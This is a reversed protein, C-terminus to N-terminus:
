MTCLLAHAYRNDGCSSVNPMQVLHSVKSNGKPMFVITPFTVLGLTGCYERDKDANYKAVRLSNGGIDKAM